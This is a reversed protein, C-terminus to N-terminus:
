MTTSMSLLFIPAPTGIRLQKMKLTERGTSHSYHMQNCEPVHCSIRSRDSEVEVNNKM